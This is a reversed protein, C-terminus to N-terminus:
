LKASSLSSIFAALVVKFLEYLSPFYSCIVASSFCQIDLIM